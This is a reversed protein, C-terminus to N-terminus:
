SEFLSSRPAAYRRRAAHAPQAAHEGHHGGKRLHENTVDLRFRVCVPDHDSLRREPDPSSLRAWAQPELGDGRYLIHDIRGSPVDTRNYLFTPCDAGACVSHSDRWGDAALQKYNADSPNFNMDGMFILPVDTATFAVFQERCVQVMPQICRHDLHTNFIHFRRGSARHVLCAWVVVRPASNGFGISLRDPTPSLWWHGTARHEFLESRYFLIIEYPSPITDFGFSRYKAQWAALLVPEPNSPSVTLATFEPLQAQWFAFQRPTVEQFGLIDPTAQRLAQAYLVKREEWPPVGPPTLFDASVNSTIITLEM